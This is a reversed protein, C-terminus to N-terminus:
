IDDVNAEARNRIESRSNRGEDRVSSVVDIVETDRIRSPPEDATRPTRTRTRPDVLTTGPALRETGGPTGMIIERATTTPRVGDLPVVLPDVTFPTGARYPTWGANFNTIAMRKVLLQSGFPVFLENEAKWQLQLNLLVGTFVYSDMRLSVALQRRALQTGRLINTYARVMNCAQDDQYTNVLAGSLQLVPPAQGFFYVVYDDSPTEVIQYRESLEMAASSIVFDLYGNTRNLQGALRPAIRTRTFADGISANFVAQEREPVRVFMRAMTDKFLDSRFGNNRAYKPTSSVTTGLLRGPPVYTM